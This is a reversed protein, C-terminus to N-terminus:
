DRKLESEATPVAGGAGYAVRKDTRPRGINDPPACGERAEFGRGVIRFEPVPAQSPTRFPKIM